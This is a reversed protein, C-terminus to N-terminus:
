SQFITNNARLNSLRGGGAGVLPHQTWPYYTYTNSVVPYAALNPTELYRSLARGSADYATNQSYYYNYTNSFVVNVAMQPLYTYSVMRRRSLPM